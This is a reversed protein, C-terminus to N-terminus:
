NYGPKWGVILSFRPVGWDAYDRGDFNQGTLHWRTQGASTWDSEALERTVKSLGRDFVNRESNSFQLSPPPPGAGALKPDCSEKLASIHDAFFLVALDEQIQQKRVCCTARMALRLCKSNVDDDDRRKNPCGIDRSPDRM